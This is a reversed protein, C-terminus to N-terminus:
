KVMETIKKIKYGKAELKNIVKFVCVWHSSFYLLDEGCECKDLKAVKKHYIEWKEKQENTVNM